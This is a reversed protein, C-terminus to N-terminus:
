PCVPLFAQAVVCLCARHRTLFHRHWSVCAPIGTGRCVPLFAQAVSVCAPGTAPDLLAQAM